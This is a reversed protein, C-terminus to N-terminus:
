FFFFGGLGTLTKKKKKPVSRTPKIKFLDGHSYHVRSYKLVNAMDHGAPLMERCGEWRGARSNKRGREEVSGPHTHPTHPTTSIPKGNPVSSM